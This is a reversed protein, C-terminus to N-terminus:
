AFNNQTGMSKRGLVSQRKEIESSSQGGIHIGAIHWTYLTHIYEIPFESSVRGFEKEGCMIVWKGDERYVYFNGFHSTIPHVSYGHIAYDNKGMENIPIISEAYYCGDKEYVNAIARKCKQILSWLLVNERLRKHLRDSEWLHKIHENLSYATEATNNETSDIKVRCVIQRGRVVTEIAWPKKKDNLLSNIVEKTNELDM